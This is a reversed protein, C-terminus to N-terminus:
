QTPVPIILPTGDQSITNTAGTILRQKDTFEICVNESIRKNNTKIIFTHCVKGIDPEVRHNASLCNTSMCAKLIPLHSFQDVPHQEIVSIEITGDSKPKNRTIYIDCEPLGPFSYKTVSAEPLRTIPVSLDPYIQDFRFWGKIAAKTALRPWQTANLNFVPVPRNKQLEMDYFVYPTGTPKNQKM